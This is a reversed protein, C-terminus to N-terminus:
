VRKKLLKFVRRAVSNLETTIKVNIKRLGAFQITGSMRVIASM